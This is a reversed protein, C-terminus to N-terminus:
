DLVINDKDIIGVDNSGEEDMDILSSLIKPPLLKMYAQRILLDEETLGEMLSSQLVVKIVRKSLSIMSRFEEDHDLTYYYTYRSIGVISCAKTTNFNNDILAALFKDKKEDTFVGKLNRKKKIM